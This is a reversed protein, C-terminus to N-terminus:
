RTEQANRASRRVAVDIGIRAITKKLGPRDAYEGVTDSREVRIRARLGGLIQCTRSESIGFREAAEAYTLGECWVAVAVAKKKASMGLDLQLDEFARQVANEPCDERRAITEIREIAAGEASTSQDYLSVVKATAGILRGSRVSQGLLNRCERIASRMGYRGKNCAWTLRSTGHDPDYNELSRWAALLGEQFIDDPDIGWQFNKWTMRNAQATLYGQLIGVERDTLTM